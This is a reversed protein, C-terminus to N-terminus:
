GPCPLTFDLDLAPAVAQGGGWSGVTGVDDCTRPGAGNTMIVERGQAKLEEGRLYLEGRV